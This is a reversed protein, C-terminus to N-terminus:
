PRGPPPCVPLPRGKLSDDLAQRMTESAAQNRARNTETQYQSRNMEGREYRNRADTARHCAVSDDGTTEPTVAGQPTSRLLQDRYPTSPTVSDPGQDPYNPPLVIDEDGTRDRNSPPPEEPPGNGGALATGGAIATLALFGIALRLVVPRSSSSPPKVTM